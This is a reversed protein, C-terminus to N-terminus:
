VRPTVEIHHRRCVPCTGLTRLWHEVCKHHFIHDCSLCAVDDGVVLGGLCIPCDSSDFRMRIPDFTLHPLPPIHQALEIEVPPPALEIEVPAAQTTHTFCRYYYCAFVLFPIFASVVGLIMWMRNVPKADEIFEDGALTGDMLNFLLVVVVISYRFRVRRLERAGGPLVARITTSSTCVGRETEMDSANSMSLEGSRDVLDGRFFNM